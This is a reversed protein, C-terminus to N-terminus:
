DEKLWAELLGRIVSGLSLGKRRAKALCANWLGDGVKVSRPKKFDNM